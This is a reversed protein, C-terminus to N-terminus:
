AFGAPPHSFPRRPCGPPCREGPAQAPQDLHLRAGEHLVQGAGELLDDLLDGAHEVHPGDGDVQEPRAQSSKSIAAMWAGGSIM